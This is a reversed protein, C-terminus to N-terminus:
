RNVAPMVVRLFAIAAPGLTMMLLPPFIFFVLVPIMKISTKAAAEEARQKRELRLAESHVRLAQAISTGFRETQILVATLTRLDDVDARKCMDRMAEARLKGVRTERQVLQLEDCLAPHVRIMESAVRGLAQDLGLGAEVSVVMLDLVDPLGLRIQLNRARIRRKLVMRPLWYGLMPVAVLLLPERVYVGSFLVGILLVFGLLGRIGFYITLHRDERWGAQMLWLRSLSVESPSKPLVRSFPTLVKEMQQAADPAPPPETGLLARLRRGLPSAPAWWATGLAFVATALTVFLFVVILLDMTM